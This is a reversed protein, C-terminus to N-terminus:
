VNNNEKKSESRLKNIAEIEKILCDRCIEKYEGCWARVPYKVAVNEKNCDVCINNKDVIEYEYITDIVGLNINYGEIGIAINDCSPIECKCTNTVTYETERFGPPGVREKKITITNENCIPCILNKKEM